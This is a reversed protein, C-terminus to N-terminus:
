CLEGDENTLTWSEVLDRIKQAVPGFVTFGELSETPTKAYAAMAIKRCEEVLPGPIVTWEEKDALPLESARYKGWPRGVQDKNLYADIGLNFSDDLKAVYKSVYHLCHRLDYIEEFVLNSREETKIVREWSARIVRFDVFGWQFYICHLHPMYQGIREGSLREKWEVRWVGPLHRAAAHEMDRQHQSRVYTIRDKDWYNTDDPMTLTMFQCNGAKEWALRNTLKFLRLRSGPTFGQCDGRKQHVSPPEWPGFAVAAFDGQVEIRATMPEKGKRKRTPHPKVLDYVAGSNDTQGIIESPPSFEANSDM